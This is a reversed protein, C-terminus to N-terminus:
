SNNITYSRQKRGWIMKQLAFKVTSREGSRASASQSKFFKKPTAKFTPEGIEVDNEVVNELPSEEKSETEPKTTPMTAISQSRQKKQFFGAKSGNGSSTIKLSKTKKTSKNEKIALPESLARKLPPKM